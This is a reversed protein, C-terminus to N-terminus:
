SASRASAAGKRFYNLFATWHRCTHLAAAVVFALGLWEHVGKLAMGRVGLLLMVGTTGVVVFLAISAATSLERWLSVCRLGANNELM